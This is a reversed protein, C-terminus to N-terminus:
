LGVGHGGGGVVFLDAVVGRRALRDGLAAFARELENEAAPTSLCLALFVTLQTLFAFRLFAVKRPRSFISCAACGEITLMLFNLFSAKM